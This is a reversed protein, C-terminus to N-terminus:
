SIGEWHEKIAKAVAVGKSEDNFARSLKNINYLYNLPETAEVCINWNPIAIFWGNIHKGYIVLFEWEDWGVSIEHVNSTSYERQIM